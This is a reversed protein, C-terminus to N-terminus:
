EYRMGSGHARVGFFETFARGAAESLFAPAHPPLSIVNMGLAMLTLFMAVASKDLWHVVLNIPIEKIDCSMVESLAVLFQVVRYSNGLAGISLVRPFLPNAKLQIDKLRDKSCGKTLLVSDSSSQQVFDAYQRQGLCCGEGGLLHFETVSGKKLGSYFAEAQEYLAQNGVCLTRSRCGHADFCQMAKEFGRLVLAHTILATFDKTNDESIPIHVMGKYGVETSSYVRNCYKSSAVSSASTTHLIVAPFNAYDEPNDHWTAGIHGRLHPYSRLKPYSHAMFMEGHTYVNIGLGSSQELIDQLDRLGRGCVVIFPGPEIRLSVQQPIPSGFAHARGSDVMAMCTLHAKSLDNLLAFWEFIPRTNCVEVLGIQFWKDVLARRLGFERAETALIALNQVGSLFLLRLAIEDSDGKYVQAAYTQPTYDASYRHWIRASHMCAEKSMVGLTLERIVLGDILMDIDESSGTTAHALNILANLLNDHAHLTESTNKQANQPKAGTEASRQLCYRKNM